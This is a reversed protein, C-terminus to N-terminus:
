NVNIDVIIKGGADKGRNEVSMLFPTPSQQFTKKDDKGGYTLNYASYNANLTVKNTGGSKETISKINGISVEKGIESYAYNTEMTFNIANNEGDVSIGGKKINLEVIRRNGTGGQVVSLMVNDIDKLANVSQDIISKDKIEEVRPIVYAMVAGIMVLAILTYIVTEVWVQGRKM